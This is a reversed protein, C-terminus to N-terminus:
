TQEDLLNRLNQKQSDTLYCISHQIYYSLREIARELAYMADEETKFWKCNHYQSEQWSEGRINDYIQGPLIYKYAVCDAFACHWIYGDLKEDRKPRFKGFM